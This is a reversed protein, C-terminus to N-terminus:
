ACIDGVKHWGNVPEVASKLLWILFEASNPLQLAVGMGQAGSLSRSASEARAWLEAYTLCGSSTVVALNDPRDLVQHQIAKLTFM